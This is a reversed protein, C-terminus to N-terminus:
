VAKLMSILRHESALIDRIDCFSITIAVQSCLRESIASYFITVLRFVFTRWSSLRVADKVWYDILYFRCQHRPQLKAAAARSFVHM